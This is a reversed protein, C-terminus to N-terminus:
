FELWASHQLQVLIGFVGFYVYGENFPLVSSALLYAPCISYNISAVCVKVQISGLGAMHFLSWAKNEQFSYAM